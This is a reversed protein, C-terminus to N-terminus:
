DFLDKRYHLLLTPADYPLTYLAKESEYRAEVDLMMPIFDSLGHKPQPFSDDHVFERLDALGAALPALMMWPDMYVVDYQAAGSAFDLSIVQALSTIDFTAIKVDIGTLKKFPELNAAIAATPASNESGFNITTGAFRRWGDGSPMEDDGSSCSSLLGGTAVGGTIMSATSLFRRRPIRTHPEAHGGRQSDSM